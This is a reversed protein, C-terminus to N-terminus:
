ILGTEAFSLCDSDGIVLHDLLRMDVLNLAEGIRATIARDAASPECEGSPHNHALILAAANLELARKVIERPFVSACDITGRFMEEFVIVRHKNDLFLCAFVEHAYDRMRLLLYNRTDAPSCLQQGRALCESLYRRAMEMVAKLQVTKALGVGPITKIVTADAGLLNRFGSFREILEQGLEVASKGRMGTRLFVALLEADTLAEAGRLLLKERPQESARWDKIAM